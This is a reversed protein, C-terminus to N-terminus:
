LPVNGVLCWSRKRSKSRIQKEWKVLPDWLFNQRAYDQRQKLEAPDVGQIPPSPLPKPIKNNVNERAGARLKNETRKLTKKRHPM